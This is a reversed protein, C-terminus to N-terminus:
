GWRKQTWMWQGPDRRIWDELRNQVSLTAALVDADFDDTRPVDVREMRVLFRVGPQRLLTGVFLPVNLRRAVLAPFTSTPAPAGLFPLSPGAEDRQDALIAFTAGRKVAMIAKMPASPGKTLLGSAFNPARIERLRKEVLPNSLRQYIGAVSRGHATLVGSAIEWNGFHASCIICGTPTKMNLAAEDELTARDSKIIDQMRLTEVFTRGLTEWMDGAIQDLEARSKEPFARALHNLARAHRHSRPGFRRWLRGSINSATELPLARALAEVTRFGAFEFRHSWVKPINVMLQSRARPEAGSRRSHSVGM